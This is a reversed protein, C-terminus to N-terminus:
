GHDSNPLRARAGNLIDPGALITELSLANAQKLLAERHRSPVSLDPAEAGACRVVMLDRWFAMLQDLLEGLQLSRSALEALLDLARRADRGLVAGALEVVRDDGATGLLAHVQDPTLREGGSALRHARWPRAD